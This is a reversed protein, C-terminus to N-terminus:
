IWFFKNFSRIRSSHIMYWKWRLKNMTKIFLLKTNQIVYKREFDVYIHVPDETALKKVITESNYGLLATDIVSSNQRLYEIVTILNKQTFNLWVTSGDLSVKFLTSFIPDWGFNNIVDDVIKWFVGLDKPDIEAKLSQIFCSWIRIRLKDVREKQEPHKSYYQADITPDWSREPEWGSNLELNWFTEGDTLLWYTSNFSVKEFSNNCSHYINDYNQRENEFVM